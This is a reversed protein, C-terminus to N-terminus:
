SLAKILGDALVKTDETDPAELGCQDYLAKIQPASMARLQDESIEQEEEPAQDQQAQPESFLPTEM